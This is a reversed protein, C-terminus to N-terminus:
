TKTQCTLNQFPKTAKYIYMYVYIYIFSLKELSRALCLSSIACAIDVPSTVNFCIFPLNLLEVQPLKVEVRATNDYKPCKAKKSRKVWRNQKFNTVDQLILHYVHHELYTTMLIGHCM